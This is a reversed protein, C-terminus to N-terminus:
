DQLSTDANDVVKCSFSPVLEVSVTLHAMCWQCETEFEDPYDNFYEDELEAEIDMSCGPCIGGYAVKGDDKAM